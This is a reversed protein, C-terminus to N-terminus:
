GSKDLNEGKAAENWVIAHRNKSELYGIIRNMFCNQYEAYTEVRKGRYEGALVSYLGWHAMMGYKAERFWQINEM